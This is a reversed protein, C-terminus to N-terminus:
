FGWSVQHHLVHWMVDGLTQGHAAGVGINAAAAARGTVRMGAIM